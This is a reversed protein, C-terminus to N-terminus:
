QGDRPADSLSPVMEYHRAASRGTPAPLSSRCFSRSKYIADMWPYHWEDIGSHGDVCGSADDPTADAWVLRKEEEIIDALSEVHDRRAHRAIAIWIL